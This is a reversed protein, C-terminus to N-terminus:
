AVTCGTVADEQGLGAAQCDGINGYRYGTEAGAACGGRYGIGGLSVYDGGAGAGYGDLKSGSVQDQIVAGAATDGIQGHSSRCSM